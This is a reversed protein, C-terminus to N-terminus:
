LRRVLATAVGQILLETVPHMAPFARNESRLFAPERHPRIFRKLTSAGDILAVVIDGDRPPRPDVIVTDGDNIGADIMSEGRVRLAYSRSGGSRKLTGMDVQMREVEGGSEVLDPYGAAISGFVPVEAVTDMEAGGGRGDTVVRFSRAQGPVRTVAGKAELARLHGVVANTSKFNFRAQVERISPWYGKVAQHRRIFALIEQQRQTLDDVRCIIVARANLTL